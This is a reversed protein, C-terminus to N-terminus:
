KNSFNSKKLKEAITHYYKAKQNNSLRAYTDGLYLANRYTSKLPYLKRFYYLAKKFNITILKYAKLLHAYQTRSPNKKYAKNEAQYSNEALWFYKKALFSLATINKSDSKLIEHSLATAKKEEKLGIYSKLLGTKYKIENRVKESVKPWLDVSEQWNESEVYTEFLRNTFPVIDKGNPFHKVYYELTTIELSLNNVKRYIKALLIYTEQNAFPTYRGAELYKRALDIKGLKYAVEGAKTYYPCKLAKNRREYKAIDKSWIALAIKYDGKKYAILGKDKPKISAYSFSSFIIIIMLASLFRKYKILSNM